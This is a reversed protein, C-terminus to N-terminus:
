WRAERYNSICLVNRAVATHLLCNMMPGNVVKLEMVLKTGKRVSHLMLLEEYSSMAKVKQPSQCCEEKQM